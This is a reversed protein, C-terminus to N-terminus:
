NKKLLLVADKNTISAMDVEKLIKGAKKQWKKHKKFFIFHSSFELIAANEVTKNRNKYASEIIALLINWLKFANNGSLKNNQYESFLTYLVSLYFKLQNVKLEERIGPYNEIKLKQIHQNFKEIYLRNDKEFLPIMEKVYNNKTVYITLYLYASPYARSRTFFDVKSIVPHKTDVKKFFLQSHKKVYEREPFLVQSKKRSYTYIQVQLLILIIIVLRKKM